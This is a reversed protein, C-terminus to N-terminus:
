ANENGCRRNWRNIATSVASEGIVVGYETDSYFKTRNECGLCTVCVGNDGVFLSAPKGCFPCPKLDITM